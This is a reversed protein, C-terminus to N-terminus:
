RIRVIIYGALWLSATVRMIANRREARRRDDPAPAAEEPEPEIEPPDEDRRREDVRRDYLVRVTADAAFRRQMEDYLDPRERSVVVLYQIEARQDAV